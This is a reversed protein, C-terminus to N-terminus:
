ECHHWAVLVRDPHRDYLSGQMRYLRLACDARKCLVFRDQLEYWQDIKLLLRLVLSDIVSVSSRLLRLFM